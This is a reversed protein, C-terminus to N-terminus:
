QDDFVSATLILPLSHLQFFRMSRLRAQASSLSGLGGALAFNKLFDWFLGRARCHGAVWYNGPQWFRNWLLATVGCYGALVFACARDAFGTLIILSMAVEIVFGVAIVLTTIQRSAIVESAQRVAGRHNLVKDLASFPKFIM